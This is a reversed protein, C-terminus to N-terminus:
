KRDLPLVWELHGCSYLYSWGSQGKGIEIWLRNAIFGLYLLRARFVLQSISLSGHSFTRTQEIGFQNTCKGFGYSPCTANIVFALFDSALRLM